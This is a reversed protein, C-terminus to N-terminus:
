IPILQNRGIVLQIKDIMPHLDKCFLIVEKVKFM